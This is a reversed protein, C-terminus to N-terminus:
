GKGGRGGQGEDDDGGGCPSWALVTGTFGAGMLIDPLVAWGGLSGTHFGYLLHCRTIALLSGLLCDLSQKGPAEM